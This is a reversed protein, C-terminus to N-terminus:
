RWRAAPQVIRVYGAPVDAEAVVDAAAAAIAKDLGAVNQTNNETYDPVTFSLPRSLLTARRQELVELVVAFTTGLRTQRVEADALDVDSGLKALYFATEDATLAM